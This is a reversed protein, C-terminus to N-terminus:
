FVRYADRGFPPPPRRPRRAVAAPPPRNGGGMKNIVDHRVCGGARERAGRPSRTQEISPAGLNAQVLGGGIHLPMPQQEGAEQQLPTQQAVFCSHRQRQGVAPFFGRHVAGAVFPGNRGGMGCPQQGPHKRRVIRHLRERQRRFVGLRQAVMQASQISRDEGGIIAQAPGILEPARGLLLRHVVALHLDAGRFQRRHRLEEGLGVHHAEKQM